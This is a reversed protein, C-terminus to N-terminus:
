KALAKESGYQSDFKVKVACDPGERKWCGGSSKWVPVGLSSAAYTHGFLM